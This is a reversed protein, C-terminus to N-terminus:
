EVTQIDPVFGDARRSGVLFHSSALALSYPIKELLIDLYILPTFLFRCLRLLIKYLYHSSFCFMIALYECLIWALASSPGVCIGKELIAFRRFLHEVGTLTYRHYDGPDPHFPQMFPVEAYVEAGVRLVREIEGVVAPPDAVHELVSSIITGDIARDKFPLYHADGIVHVGPYPLIDLNLVNLGLHVSKSGINLVTAQPHSAIRRIFAAFTQRSQQSHFSLQPDPIWRKLWRMLRSQEPLPAFLSSEDIHCM